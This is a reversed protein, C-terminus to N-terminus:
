IYGEGFSDGQRLSQYHQRLMLVQVASIRERIFTVLRNVICPGFTLILLLIILPGTLTSILTTFWPSRSYWSEFWGQHAERDRQRTELRERLKSM